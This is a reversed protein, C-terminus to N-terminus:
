IGGPGPPGATAYRSVPRSLGLLGRLTSAEYAQRFAGRRQLEPVLGRTIAELDAPITGPCLRLGALGSAQWDQLLDALQAPTGTFVTSHSACAYGALEDLRAKRGAAAAADADLFVVLDGFIHVTETARGAAQQAARIEAVIARAHDGGAPTVFGIDASRAILRYPV